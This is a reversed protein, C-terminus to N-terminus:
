RTGFRTRYGGAGDNADGSGAFPVMPVNRVGTSCNVRINPGSISESSNNDDDGHNPSPNPNPNPNPTGIGGGGGGGGGRFIGGGRGGRRQSAVNSWEVSTRGRDPWAAEGAVPGVM